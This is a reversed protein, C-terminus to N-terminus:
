GAPDLLAFSRIKKLVIDMAAQESPGWLNECSYKFGEKRLTKVYTEGMAVQIDTCINVKRIGHRIANQVQALPTGSGGHLVIPLGVLERIRDLREINLHPKFTYQGHQTGISVALADVGTERVFKLAQGPDTQAAEPTDAKGAGEEGVLRGLEGEVTIGAAHARLAVKRTVAINQGFPLASADMMVSTFGANVANNCAEFSPAHDLHLAVPVTSNKAALYATEVAGKFGGMRNIELIGCQLIVPIDAKEAAHIIARAVEYSWFEFAGVAIKKEEAIELINKMTVLNTRIMLYDVGEGFRHFHSASVKKDTSYNKM